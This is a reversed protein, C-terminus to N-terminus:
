AGRWSSANCQLPVAGGNKVEATTPPSHDAERRQRKVEPFCGGTGMICSAPHAGSGTQANHFLSFLM